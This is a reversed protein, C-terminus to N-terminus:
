GDFLCVTAGVKLLLRTASIGSIGAGFVLVRKDKLDM